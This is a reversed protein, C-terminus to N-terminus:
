AGYVYRRAQVKQLGEGPTFDVTSSTLIYDGDPVTLVDGPELLPRYPIAFGVQDYQEEQRNISLKAEAYCERESMLYPNKMERYRHEGLDDRVFEAEVYAGIMRVHTAIQRLDRARAYGEILDFTFEVVPDAAVPKWAYLSGDFRVFLRVYRGELSRNLGDNATEGPDLSNWEVFESLQPIEADRFEFPGDHAGLGWYYPTEPVEKIWETYTLWLRDNLWLSIILWVSDKDSTFVAERVSLEVKASNPAVLPVQYKLDYVHDYKNYKLVIPNGSGNLGVYYHTDDFADADNQRANVIWGEGWLAPTYGKIVYSHPVEKEVWLSASYAGTAAPTYTFDTGTKDVTGAGSALWETDEVTSANFTKLFKYDHIGAWNGYFKVTDEVCKTKGRNHLYSEIFCCCVDPPYFILDEGFEDVYGDDIVDDYTIIFEEYTDWEYETSTLTSMTNVDICMKVIDSSHWGNTYPYPSLLSGIRNITILWGQQGWVILWNPNTPWGAVGGVGPNAFAYFVYISALEGGSNTYHMKQTIAFGSFFTYIAQAKGGDMAWNEMSYYGNVLFRPYITMPPTPYATYHTGAECYFDNLNDTFTGYCDYRNPATPSYTGGDNLMWGRFVGMLGEHNINLAGGALTRPMSITAWSFVTVQDTFPPESQALVLMSYRKNTIRKWSRGWDESKYIGAQDINPDDELVGDGTSVWIDGRSRSNFWGITLCAGSGSFKNCIVDSHQVTRFNDYTYFVYMNRMPLGGPTNFGTLTFGLWCYFNKRNISRTLPGAYTFGTPARNVIRWKYTTPYIDDTQLIGTSCMMTWRKTKHYDQVMDGGSSVGLSTYLAAAPTRNVSTLTNYPFNVRDASVDTYQTVVGTSRLEWIIDTLVTDEVLDHGPPPIQPDDEPFGSDELWNGVDIFQQEPEWQDISSFGKSIGGSAGRELPRTEVTQYASQLRQAGTTIYQLAQTWTIGDTSWYCTIVAYRYDVRLFRFISANDTTWSMASTVAKQSDQGGRREYLHLKDDAQQYGFWWLNDPDRGRFVVGCYESDALKACRFGLQQIGNWMETDYTFFFIAEEGNSVDLLTKQDTKWSGKVPNVHQLGGYSSNTRDEFSDAGVVQAQQFRSQESQFKDTVWALHDRASVQVVKEYGDEGMQVTAEWADIEHIQVQATVAGNISDYGWEHIIAWTKDKDSYPASTFLDDENSLVLSSASMDGLSGQYSLLRNTIDLQVTSQGILLTAPSRWISQRGAAYVYSGALMMRLTSHSQQPIVPIIQGHSWNDGDKSTYFRFRTFPHYYSGDGAAAVLMLVNGVKSLRVGERFRYTTQQDFVDIEIHDSIGGVEIWFGLIGGARYIYKVVRNDIYKASTRGPIDTAVVFFQRDPDDATPMSIGSISRIPTVLRIDLLTNNVLPFVGPTAYHLMHTKNSNDIESWVLFGPRMATIHLSNRWEDSDVETLTYAVDFSSWTAGFDITTAVYIATRGMCYLYITDDEACLSLSPLVDAPMALTDSTWVGSVLRDTDGESTVRVINGDLEVADFDIGTALSIGGNTHDATGDFDLNWQHLSVRHRQNEQRTQLITYDGPSVGAEAQTIM